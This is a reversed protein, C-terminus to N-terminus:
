RLPGGRGGGWPAGSASFFGHEPRCPQTSIDAHRLMDCWSPWRIVRNIGVGRLPRSSFAKPQRNAGNNPAIPQSNSKRFWPQGENTPVLVLLYSGMQFWQAGGTPAWPGNFPSIQVGRIGRVM